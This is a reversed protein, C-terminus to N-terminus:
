RSCQPLETLTALKSCQKSPNWQVWLVIVEVQLQKTTQSGRVSRLVIATKMFLHVVNVYVDPITNMFHLAHNMFIAPGKSVSRGIVNVTVPEVTATARNFLPHWTRGGGGGGGGSSGTYWSQARSRRWGTFSGFDVHKWPLLFSSTETMLSSLPVRETHWM